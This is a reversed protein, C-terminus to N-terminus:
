EPEIGASKALDRLRVIEAKLFSDFEARSSSVPEVALAKLRETYVSSRNLTQVVAHLKQTIADPLNAPGVLAYWVTMEVPLGQEALTPIEPWLATRKKQTVGIPNVKGTDKFPLVSSFTTIFLPVHGGALDNMAPGTGKYPVIQPTVGVQRAILEAALRTEMAAGAFQLSDKNKAAFARFDQVSRVGTGSSAVFVLPTIGLQAITTFDKPVDYPLNKLTSPQIALTSAVVGLTYGDPAGRVILQTGPINNGGPKNDVVISQKLMIALHDAVARALADMGGGTPAPVVLRIPREPWGQAHCAGGALTGLSLTLAALLGRRRLTNLM